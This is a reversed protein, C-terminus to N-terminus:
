LCAETQHLSNFVHLYAAVHPFFVCANSPIQSSSDLNRSLQTADLHLNRGPKFLWVKGFVSGLLHKPREKLGTGPLSGAPVLTQDAKVLTTFWNWRHASSALQLSLIIFGSWSMFPLQDWHTQLLPPGLDFRELCWCSCALAIKALRSPSEDCRHRWM